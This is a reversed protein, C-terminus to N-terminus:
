TAWVLEEIGANIEFDRGGKQELASIQAAGKPAKIIVELKGQPGPVPKAEPPPPPIKGAAKNAKETQVGIGKQLKELAKSTKPTISKFVPKAGPKQDDKFWSRV